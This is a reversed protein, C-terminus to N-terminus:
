HSSSCYPLELNDYRVLIGIEQVKFDATELMFPVMSGSSTNM